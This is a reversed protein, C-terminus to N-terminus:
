LTVELGNSVFFTGPSGTTELWQLTLTSNLPTGPLPLPVQVDGQADTTFSGVPPLILFPQAIDIVVTGDGVAIFPPTAQFGIFLFANIGPLGNELTLVHTANGVEPAGGAATFAIVPKGLGPAQTTGTGVTTVTAIAQMYYFPLSNPAVPSFLSVAQISGLPNGSQFTGPPIFGAMQPVIAEIRTTTSSVIVAPRIDVGVFGGVFATFNVTAGSLFNGSIIVLDGPAAAEPTVRTITQGHAVPVALTCTLVVLAPLSGFSKLARQNM